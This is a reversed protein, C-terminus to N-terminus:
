DLVDSEKRFHTSQCKPCAFGDPLFYEAPQEFWVDSGEREIVQAVREVTEPTLIAENCAECYFAPIGVGWARQRSLTWDPRNQVMATIRAEGEPPIWRVGQIAQLARERHGAHDISMFWQETARFILPTDCRWCHPYNHRYPEYHLLAGVERLRKIVARNGEPAIPLGAFEGAEATFVGKADVPCLIPLGHKKGTAFDEAGHGPATHVVGTGDEATVYDALVVPSEREFIPHKAVAGQLQEGAATGLVQYDSVGFAEMTPAVLRHALLYVAGNAKVYAYELEPHVALALNAPITWPTTTWILIKLNETAPAGAPPKLVPFAVYISDSTKEDYEVEADALATQCTPCWLTPRLGRYIYGRQALEGFIRVLGAEFAYDMTLYPKDWEGLLGLREFQERQVKVYHAAYERCARRLAIKDPKEGRELFQKAVANEIPLGHNDWGPVYPTRYGRMAYSRVVIDKLTKNLAHGIHIDGNSYPPGDHLIQRKYVD